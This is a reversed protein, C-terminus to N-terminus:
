HQREITRDLPVIRESDPCLERRAEEESSFTRANELNHTHSYRSGRRTVYSGDSTRRIVFGTM